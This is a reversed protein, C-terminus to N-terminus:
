VIARAFRQAELRRILYEEVLFWNCKCSSNVDQWKMLARRNDRAWGKTTEKNVNDGIRRAHRSVDSDSAEFEIQKDAIAILCYLYTHFRKPCDAAALIYNITKTILPYDEGYIDEQAIEDPM